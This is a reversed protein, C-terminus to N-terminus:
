SSELHLATMYHSYLERVPDIRSEKFETKGTQIIESVMENKTQHDSSLPGFFEDVLTPADWSILSYLDNEGVKQAGERKKGATPSGTKTVYPGIGRSHIKKTSLHELKLVYIYGVGVPSSIKNWEPLKLKYRSSLGLIKLVDLINERPPSKFPPVIVPTFGDKVVKKVLNQYQIDSISKFKQIFDRSYTKDKSSDMLKTIKEYLVTFKERNLRGMEEALKKAIMGCHMELLQGTNMRNMVSLPNYIIDIPQGWPTIPMNEDKEIKSIVGKNFHRNNLKDGKEIKLEQQVIFKIYIGSFPHEVERTKFRGIPYSGHLKIYREKFDHYIPLLNEPIDEEPVNSFIQIDTVKGQESRVHKFSEVDYIATSYSILIDGKNVVDNLNVIYAVTEEPTLTVEHHEIHLSTFKKAASESIVMADEFNYGKWPMFAALLNVGNTIFGDNVNAGEAILQGKKVNDGTKVRPRFVSLGHKGQGSRVTRPSTDISHIRGNRDRITIIKDTVEVVKGNEPSRKIFNDSLLNTLLSEYGSQVFPIEADRLPIAQKAQAVAQAVRTGDNSEVFPVMAPGSSLIETPHVDKRDKMGFMGRVNNISAGVTLHQQIGVGEGDPTELPDINGYYTHHINLAQKPFAETSPIGGIGIPTVRTMMSIEEQPNINELNQMNQSKIIDTFTKTPNFYFTADQDGAFRKSSYENYSAHVQKQVLSTFIESTRVRQKDISNRDEVKGNVVERSIYKIIDFIHTPDGRSHLINKEVPTVINQWIQDLIHIANKNGTQNEIAEVWDKQKDNNFDVNKKFNKISRIFSEVLQRGVEDKVNFKIYRRDPLQAIQEKLKEASIEYDVNFLRLTEHLGYKYGIYLILPFLYGGMRLQLYSKGTALQKSLVAITSYTSAFMGLYPKPFFIPYTVNQNVLVWHNGNILFTGNETLHPLDINATHVKGEDDELKVEYRDKITKEIINAGTEKTVKKVDKVTLPHTDKNELTKFAGRLDEILTEDFDRKRKEYIHTPVQNDVLNNPKQMQVLPDVATSIANKKDISIDNYKSIITTQQDTGSKRSISKSKDLNGTVSYTIAKTAIEKPDFEDSNIEEPSSRLYNVINNKLSKKEEEGMNKTVEPDEITEDAITEIEHETQEKDDQSSLSLLVKRVRGLQIKHNKDFIKVYKGGESNYFFVFLQDFPIEIKGQLYQRLMLYIPFVRRRMISKPVASELNVSYLLIRHHTANSLTGLSKILDNILFVGRGRRFRTVKFRDVIKQTHKSFDIFFNLQGVSDYSGLPGALPRLKFSIIKKRDAPKLWSKIPRKITPVFLHRVYHPKLKMFNYADFFTNNEGFFAIAVNKDDYGKPPIILRDVPRFPRTYAIHM